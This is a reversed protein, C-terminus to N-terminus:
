LGEPFHESSPKRNPIRVLFPLFKWHRFYLASHPEDPEDPASPTRIMGVDLTWHFHLTQPKIKEQTRGAGLKTSPRETNQM